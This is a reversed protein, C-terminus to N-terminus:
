ESSDTAGGPEAPPAAPTEPTPTVAPKQIISPDVPAKYGEKGGLITGLDVGPKAAEQGRVQEPSVAPKTGEIGEVLPVGKSQDSSKSKDDPMPPEEPKGVNLLAFTGLLVGGLFFAAISAHNLRSTVGVLLNAVGRPDDGDLYAQDNIDRQRRFVAQSTLFSILTCAMSAGFGFWAFALLKVSLTDPSPAIDKLFALSIGFAGASLTLVSKDFQAATQGESEISMKREELYQQHRLKAIEEESMKIM